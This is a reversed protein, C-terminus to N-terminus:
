LLPLFGELEQVPDDTLDARIIRIKERCREILERLSAAYAFAEAGIDEDDVGEDGDLDVDEADDPDEGEEDDEEDDDEDPDWFLLRECREADDALADMVAVNFEQTLTVITDIRDEAEDAFEVCDETSPDPTACFADLLAESEDLIVSFTRAEM